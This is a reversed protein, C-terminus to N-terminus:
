WGRDKLTKNYADVAKRLRAVQAPTAKLNKLPTRFMGMKPRFYSGNKIAKATNAVYCAATPKHLRLVTYKTCAAQSSDIAVLDDVDVLVEALLYTSDRAPLKDKPVEGTYFHLGYNDIPYGRISAAQTDAVLGKKHLPGRGMTTGKLTKALLWKYGRIERIGLSKLSQITEKMFAEHDNVNNKYNVCMTIERENGDTFNVVPM